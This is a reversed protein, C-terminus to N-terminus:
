NCYKKIDDYAETKGLEGAKSFDSCGSEKNGLKIQILAREYYADAYQPRLSIVMNYDEIAGRKDGLNNKLRGRQYYADTQSPFIELARNFDEMAGKYDKMISKIQGRGVFSDICGWGGNWRVILITYDQISGAYDKIASKAIARMYVSSDDKPDSEIAKTYYVIAGTYDQNNFRVDAMSKFDNNNQGFCSITSALFILLSILKM